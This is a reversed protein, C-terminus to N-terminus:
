GRGPAEPHPGTQLRAGHVRLWDRQVRYDPWHDAVCAWFALSHDMHRLHVLEHVTVYEAVAPDAMMLRWNFSIRGRASASGWRTRQDRIAIGTPTVGIRPAWVAVRAAFHTRAASRYWQEVTSGLAAGDPIELGTATRRARRRPSAVLTVWGGLVPIRDGAVLPAPRSARCRALAEAVWGARAAVAERLDRDSVYPPATVVLEDNLVRLTIRRAGPHRRVRFEQGDRGIRLRGAATRPQLV